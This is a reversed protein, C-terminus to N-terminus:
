FYLKLAMQVTRNGGKSIIKGFNANNTQTTPNSLTPHNAAGFAELRYQLRLREMIQWSKALAADVSTRSPPGHFLYKPTTGMTGLACQAFAATNFYQNMQETESGVRFWPDQGAVYDARCGTNYTSRTNAGGSIGLPSGSRPTYIGSLQWRGLAQRIFPQMNALKPSEWIGDFKFQHPYYFSTWGRMWHMDSLNQIGGNFALTGGDVPSLSKSYTYNAQFQFGHSFRKEVSIEGAQYSATAWSAEVLIQTFNTNRRAFTPYYQPNLDAANILHYSEMGVYAIRFLWEGKLQHEITLNWTMDRGLKYDPLYAEQGFVPLIFQTNPPPKYEPVPWPPFPSKGGTPAYNKWPDDFPIVKVNPDTRTLSFTTSFPASDATHNYNSYEIPVTYMGFAARVSTNTVFKPRWALGLRPNFYKWGSSSGAEPVGPDGPFVMGLPANPYVKSQQGPIFMQIRGNEPVPALFPEWRIGATVTFNPTIKYNDQIHSGFTSSHIRQYEGGGQTWSAAYGLLFDAMGLGTVTGDFSILPLAQWDTLDHWYQKGLDVGAVIMHKGRNITTSDAISWVWHSVSNKNQGFGFGGKGGAGGVSLSDISCFSYPAPPDFVKGPIVQSLCIPKGDKDRLGSVSDTFERTYSGTISNVM